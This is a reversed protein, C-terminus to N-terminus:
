VLGSQNKLGEEFERRQTLLRETPVNKIFSERDSVFGTVLSHIRRLEAFTQSRDIIPEHLDEFIEDIEDPTADTIRGKAYSLIDDKTFQKENLVLQDYVVASTIEYSSGSPAELPSPFGVVLPQTVEVPEEPPPAENSEPDGYEALTDQSKESAFEGLNNISEAVGEINQAVIEVAGVAAFVDKAKDIAGVFKDTGVIQSLAGVCPDADIFQQSISYSNVFLKAQEFANNEEDIISEVFNDVSNVLNNIADIRATANPGLVGTSIATTVFDDFDDLGATLVEIKTKAQQVAIFGESFATCADQSSIDGSLSQKIKNYSNMVGLREALQEPDKLFDTHEKLNTLGTIARPIASKLSSISGLPFGFDNEFVANDLRSELNNLNSELVNTAGEFPNKFADGDLVSQFADQADAQLPEIAGETIPNTPFSPINPLAM